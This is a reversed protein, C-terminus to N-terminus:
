FSIVTEGLSKAKDETSEKFYFFVTMSSIHIIEGIVHRINKEIEILDPQTKDFDVGALTIHPEEDKNNLGSSISKQYHTAVNRVQKRLETLDESCAVDLVYFNRRRNIEQTIKPALITVDFPETKIEQLGKILDKFAEEPYENLTDKTLYLTIHPDSKYKSEYQSALRNKEVKIINKVLEPFTVRISIHYEGKTFQNDM